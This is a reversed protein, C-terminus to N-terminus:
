NGRGTPLGEFPDSEPQQVGYTPHGKIYDLLQQEMFAKRVILAIDTSEAFIVGTPRYVLQYGPHGKMPTDYIMAKTYNVDYDPQALVTGHSGWNVNPRTSAQAASM